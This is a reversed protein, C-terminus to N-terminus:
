PDAHGRRAGPPDTGDDSLRWPGRAARCWYLWTGGRRREAGDQQVRNCREEAVFDSDRGSEMMQMLTAGAKFRWQRIVPGLRGDGPSRWKAEDRYGRRRARARMVPATGAKHQKQTAGVVGRGNAEVALQQMWLRAAM